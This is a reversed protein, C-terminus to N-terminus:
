EERRRAYSYPRFEAHDGGVEGEVQWKCITCRLTVIVSASVKMQAGPLGFSGAPKAQLAEWIGLGGQETCWPCPREPMSRLLGM